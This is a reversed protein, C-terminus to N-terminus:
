GSDVIRRVIEFIDTVHAPEAVDDLSLAGRYFLVGDATPAEPLYGHMARDPYNKVFRTFPGAFYSPHFVVGEDAVLIEQGYRDDAFNIGYRKRDAVTLFMGPADELRALVTERVRPEPFWFRAFTSDVFAIYEKGLELGDLKGLLDYAREVTTMGHDSFLLIEVHNRECFRREIAHLFAGVRDIYPGLADASAGVRHGASDLYPDYYFFVDVEARREEAHRLEAEIDIGDRLYRFDVRLGAADFLDALTDGPLAIPPFRDYKLAHRSFLHSVQLPLRLRHEASSGVKRTIRFWILRWLNAAPLLWRMGSRMLVRQVTSRPREELYYETWIGTETPLRGTLIAPMVTSSYGLLTTLRRRENWLDDEFPRDRLYLWSFGDSFYLFLKM